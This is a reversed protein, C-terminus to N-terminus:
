LRLIDPRQDDLEPRAIEVFGVDDAGCDLCLRRLEDASMTPVVGAPALEARRAHFRKVAPHDHIPPMRSRRTPEPPRDHPRPSTVQMICGTAHQTADHLYSRCSYEM